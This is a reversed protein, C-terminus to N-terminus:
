LIQISNNNITSSGIEDNTLIDLVKEQGQYLEYSDATGRPRRAVEVVTPEDGEFTLGSIDTLVNGYKQDRGSITATNSVRGFNIDAATVIYELQYEIEGNALLHPSVTYSTPSILIDTLQIDEVPIDGE